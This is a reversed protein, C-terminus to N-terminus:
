NERLEFAENSEGIVPDLELNQLVKEHQLSCRHFLIEVQFKLLFFFIIQEFAYM